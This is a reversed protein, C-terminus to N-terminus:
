RTSGEFVFGNQLQVLATDVTVTSGQVNLNGRVTLDTTAFNDTGTDANGVEGFSKSGVHITGSCLYTAM